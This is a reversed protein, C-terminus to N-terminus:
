KIIEPYKTLIQQYQKRIATRDAGPDDMEIRLSALEAHCATGRSFSDSVKLTKHLTVLVTACAACIAALADILQKARQKSTDSAAQQGDGEPAARDRV